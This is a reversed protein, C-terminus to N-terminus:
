ELGMNEIKWGNVMTSLLVMQEINNEKGKRIIMKIIAKTSSDISTKAFLIDKKKIKLGHGKLKQILAKNTYEMATTCEMKSNVLIHAIMGRTYEWEMINTM